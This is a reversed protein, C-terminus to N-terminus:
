QAVGAKGAETTAMMRRIPISLLALIVASIVLAATTATFLAPTQELREPLEPAVQAKTRRLIYPRVARALLARSAERAQADSVPDPAPAEDPADDSTVDVVEIAEAIEGEALAVPPEIEPVEPERRELQELHAAFVSAKGLLGPNLFDLLSWLERISNEIPTGSMAIRHRARVLRAAKASATAANKIAQAEDLVLYDFEIDRLMPADRRLTGYTTIVVDYERFQTTDRERLPGQHVLM